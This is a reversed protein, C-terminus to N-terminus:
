KKDMSNSETENKCRVLLKSRLRRDRFESHPTRFRWSTTLAALSSPSWSTPIKGIGALLVLKTKRRTRLSAGHLLTLQLRFASSVRRSVVRFLVFSDTERQRSEKNERRIMTVPLHSPSTGLWVFHNSAVADHSEVM